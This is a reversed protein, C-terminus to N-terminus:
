ETNERRRWASRDKKRGIRKKIRREKKKKSSASWSEM